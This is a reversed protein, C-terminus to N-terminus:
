APDDDEERGVGSGYAASPGFRCPFTARGVPAGPDLGMLRLAMAAM